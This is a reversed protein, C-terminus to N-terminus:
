LISPFLSYFHCFFFSFLSCISSLIHICFFPRSKLRYVRFIFYFFIYIFLCFFSIIFRKLHFTNVFKNSFCLLRILSLKIRTKNNFCKTFLILNDLWFFFFLCDHHSTNVLQVVFSCKCLIFNSFFFKKRKKKKQFFVEFLRSFRIETM